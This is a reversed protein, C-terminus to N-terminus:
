TMVSAEAIFAQATADNKICKVAVKTGRYDGVMVDTFSVFLTLKLGIDSVVKTRTILAGTYSILHQSQDNFLEIAWRWVGRQRHDPDTEAGKQEPGLRRDLSSLLRPSCFASSFYYRRTWQWRTVRLAKKASTLFGNVGALMPKTTQLPFPQLWSECGPWMVRSYVCCLSKLRRQSRAATISVHCGPSCAVKNLCRPSLYNLHLPPITHDLSLSKQVFSFEPNINNDSTTFFILKVTLKQDSYLDWFKFSSDRM